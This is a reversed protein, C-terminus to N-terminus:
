RSSGPSSSSRSSALVAAEEEVLAFLEAQTTASRALRLAEALARDREAQAAISLGTAGARSLYRGETWWDLWARVLPDGVVEPDLGADVLQEALEDFASSPLREVSEGAAATRRAMAFAYEEIMLRLQVQKDAAQRQLALVSRAVTDPPVEVDPFVGGLNRLSRGAATVVHQGDRTEEGDESAEGDGADEGDSAGDGDGAGEGGEAGEGVGGEADELPFGRSDRKRHLSRGLPTYWTGTTIRMRRGDSLPYVTQVVGKGFTRTGVLVARDHDQLAGAVIEAASATFEDVLVVIPKDPILAPRQARYSQKAVGGRGDRQGVSAVAQGRPLFNDAVMLSEDLYGGPNGRLDVVVANADAAGKLTDALEEAVDRAFQVIRIHAIGGELTAAAVAPIHVNDRVISVAVWDNFGARAVRLNVTSGPDGRIADRADDLSWETADVGEVEVIQDGLILGSRAAPTNDFVATITVLGDLRSIQVGIGAYNRTNSEEFADYAEPTFVTAYPDDLREILGDIARQWLASDRLASEHNRSITGFVELFIRYPDSQATDGAPDGAVSVRGSQAAASPASSVAAAVVAVLAFRRLIVSM